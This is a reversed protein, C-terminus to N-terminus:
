FIATPFQLSNIRVSHATCTSPAPPIESIDQLNKRPSKPPNCRPPHRPEHELRERFSKRLITKLNSVRHLCAVRIYLNLDTKISQFKTTHLPSASFHHFSMGHEIDIYVSSPAVTPEDPSTLIQLFNVM